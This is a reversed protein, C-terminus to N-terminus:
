SRSTSHAPHLEYTARHCVTEILAGPNLLMGTATHALTRTNVEAFSWGMDMAPPESLTVVGIDSPVDMGRAQLRPLLFPLVTSDQVIIGDGPECAAALQDAHDGNSVHVYHQTTVIHPPPLGLAKAAVRCGKRRETIWYGNGGLDYLVIRRYGRQALHEIALRMGGAEDFLIRPAAIDPDANVFLLPMGIQIIRALVEKGPVEACIAADAFRQQLMQCREIASAEPMNQIVLLQDHESLALSLWHLFAHPLSFIGSSLLGIINRRDTHLTQAMRDPRYHLQRVAAHVREATEESFRISGAHGNLITSVVSPSVKALRAITKQTIAPRPRQM